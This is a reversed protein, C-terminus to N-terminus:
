EVAGEGEGAEGTSKSKADPYLGKTASFIVQYQVPKGQLKEVEKRIQARSPQPESQARARIYDTRKMAKTSGDSMPVDLVISRSDGSEVADVEVPAIQPATEGKAM